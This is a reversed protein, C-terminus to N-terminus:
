VNGSKEYFIKGVRDIHEILDKNDIHTFISIDFTYPLYLEDLEDDLAYIIKLNLNDGLLTIDIDSGTKYNGKARSGYLIVKEIANFKLFVGKIKRLTDSSLGFM